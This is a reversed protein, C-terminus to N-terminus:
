DEGQRPEVFRAAWNRYVVIAAVGTIALGIIHVVRIPMTNMALDFPKTVEDGTRIKIILGLVEPLLYAIVLGVLAITLWRVISIRRLRDLSTM